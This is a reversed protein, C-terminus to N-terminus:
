EKSMRNMKLIPLTANHEQKYSLEIVSFMLYVHLKFENIHLQKFVLVKGIHSLRVALCPYCWVCTVDMNMGYQANQFIFNFKFKCNFMKKRDGYIPMDYQNM